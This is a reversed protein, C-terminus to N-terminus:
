ENKEPPKKEAEEAVLHNLKQAEAFIGAVISAPWGQVEAQTVPKGDTKLLCRILLDAQMGDFRKIGIPKGSQDYGMRAQVTDLYQDRMAATMEVLRLNLPGQDGGEIVVPIDTKKLNFTLGM